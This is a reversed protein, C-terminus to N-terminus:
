DSEMAIVPSRSYILKVFGEASIIRDSWVGFRIQVSPSDGPAGRCVFWFSLVAEEGGRGERHLRLWNFRFRGSLRYFFIISTGLNGRWEIRRSGADNVIFNSDTWHFEMDSSLTAMGTAVM